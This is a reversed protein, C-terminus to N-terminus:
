RKGKKGLAEMIRFEDVTPLLPRKMFLTYLAVLAATRDNALVHVVSKFSLCIHTFAILGPEISVGPSPL